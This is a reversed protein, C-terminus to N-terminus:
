CTAIEAIHIVGSDVPTSVILGDLLSAVTAASFGMISAEIIPRMTKEAAPRNKNHIRPHMIPNCSSICSLLASSPHKIPLEHYHCPPLETGDFLIRMPYANSLPTVANTPLM